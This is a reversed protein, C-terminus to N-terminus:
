TVDKLFNIFNDVTVTELVSGPYTQTFVDRTAKSMKDQYKIEFGSLKGGREEVCDIEKQDYTRWFYTNVNRGQYANVKRREILIFNEWLQGKDNRLYLPNFNQRALAM